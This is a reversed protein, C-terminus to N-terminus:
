FKQAMTKIEIVKCKEKLVKIIHKRNDLIDDKCKLVLANDNMNEIYNLLLTEEKDKLGKFTFNNVIILKKENFLDIYNIENLIDVIETDDYDYKIINKIDLKNILDNIKEKLINIENGLFVYIM